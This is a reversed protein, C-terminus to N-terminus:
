PVLLPLAAFLVEIAVGTPSQAKLTVTECQRTLMYM